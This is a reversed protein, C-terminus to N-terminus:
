ANRLDGRFSAGLSRDCGVKHTKWLDLEGHEGHKSVHQHQKDFPFRNEFLHELRGWASIATQRRNIVGSYSFLKNAVKMIGRDKNWGDGLIYSKM